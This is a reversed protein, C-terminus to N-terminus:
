CQGSNHDLGALYRARYGLNGGLGFKAVKEHSGDCQACRSAVCVGHSVSNRAIQAETSEGLATGVNSTLQRQEFVLQLFINLIEVSFEGGIVRREYLGGTPM